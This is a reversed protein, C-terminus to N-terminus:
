IKIFLFMIYINLNFKFIDFSLEIELKKKNQEPTLLSIINRQGLKSTILYEVIPAVIKRVVIKAKMEENKASEKIKSFIIKIIRPEIKQAEIIKLKSLYITILRLGVSENTLFKIIANGLNIIANITAITIEFGISIFSKSFSILL